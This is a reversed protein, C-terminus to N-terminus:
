SSALRRRVARTRARAQAEAERAEALEALADAREDCRCTGDARYHAPLLSQKPCRGIDSFRIVKIDAV